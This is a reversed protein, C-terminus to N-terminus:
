CYSTLLLKGWSLSSPQNLLIFDLHLSFFLCSLLSHELGQFDLVLVVKETSNSQLLELNCSHPKSYGPNVLLHNSFEYFVCSVWLSCSSSTGNSFLWTNLVWEEDPVDIAMLGSCLRAEPTIKHILDSFRFCLSPQHGEM